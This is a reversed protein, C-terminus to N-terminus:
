ALPGRSALSKKAARRAAAMRRLRADEALIEEQTMGAARVLWEPGFELSLVLDIRVYLDPFRLELDRRFRDKRMRLKLPNWTLTFSNREGWKIPTDPARMAKFRLWLPSDGDRPALQYITWDFVQAVARAGAPVTLRM